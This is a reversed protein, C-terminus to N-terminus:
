GANNDLGGASKAPRSNSKSGVDTHDFLSLKQMKPCDAKTPQNIANKDAYNVRNETKGLSAMAFNSSLILVSLMLTKKMM